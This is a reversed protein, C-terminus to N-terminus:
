SHTHCFFRKNMFFSKRIKIRIKYKMFFNCFHNKFQNIFSVIVRNFRTNKDLSTVKIGGIINDETLQTDAGIVTSDYNIDSIYKAKLTALQMCYEEPTIDESIQSEDM